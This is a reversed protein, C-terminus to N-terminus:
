EARRRQNLNMLRHDKYEYIQEEYAELPESVTYSFDGITLVRKTYTAWIHSWGHVGNLAFEDIGDQWLVLKKRNPSIAFEVSLDWTSGQTANQLSPAGLFLVSGRERGFIPHSNVTGTMEEMLKLFAPTLAAAPVTIKISEKITGVYKETGKIEGTDVNVGIAGRFDRADTQGFGLRVQKQRTRLSQTIPVTTTTLSYSLESGIPTTSNTDGHNPAQQTPVPGTAGASPAIGIPQRPGWTVSV